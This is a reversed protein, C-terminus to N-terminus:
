AALHLQRAKRDRDRMFASVAQLNRMRPHARSRLEGSPDYYLTGAKLGESRASCM